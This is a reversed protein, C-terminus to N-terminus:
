HFTDDSQKRTAAAAAEREEKLRALEQRAEEIQQETVTVPVDCDIQEQRVFSMKKIADELYPIQQAQLEKHYAELREEKIKECYIDTLKQLSEKRTIRAIPNTWINLSHAYLKCSFIALWTRQNTPQHRCYSKLTLV